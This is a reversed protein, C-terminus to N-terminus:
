KSKLIDFMKAPGHTREYDKYDNIKNQLAKLYGYQIANSLSETVIVDAREKKANEIDNM